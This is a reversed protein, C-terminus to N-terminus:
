PFAHWPRRGTTYGFDPLWSFERNEDIADIIAENVMQQENM